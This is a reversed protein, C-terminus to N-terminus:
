QLQQTTQITPHAEKSAQQPPVALIAHKPGAGVAAVLPLLWARRGTAGKSRLEVGPALGRGWWHRDLQLVPTCKWLLLVPPRANLCVAILIVARLCGHASQDWSGVVLWRYLKVHAVILLPQCPCRTAADANGNCACITTACNQDAHRPPNRQQLRTQSAARVCCAWEWCCGWPAGSCNSIPQGEAHTTNM